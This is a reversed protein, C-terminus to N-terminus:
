AFAFAPAATKNATLTTVQHNFLHCITRQKGNQLLVMMSAM